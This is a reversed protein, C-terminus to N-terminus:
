ASSLTINAERPKRAATRESSNKASNMPAHCSAV